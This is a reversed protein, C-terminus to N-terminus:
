AKEPATTARRHSKTRTTRRAHKGTGLCDVCFPQPPGKKACACDVEQRPKPLVGFWFRREEETQPVHVPVEAEPPVVGAAM